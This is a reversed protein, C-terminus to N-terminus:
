SLIVKTIFKSVPDIILPKRLIVILVLLLIYFGAIILYAWPLGLTEGIWHALAFTLFLLTAAGLVTLVICVILTSLLVTTKESVMLKLDEGKLSLYRKLTDWLRAYSSKEEAM